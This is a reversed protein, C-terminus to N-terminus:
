NSTKIASLPLLATSIRTHICWISRFKCRVGSTKRVGQVTREAIQREDTLSSDVFPVLKIENMLESRSRGPKNGPQNRTSQTCVYSFSLSFFLQILPSDLSPTLATLSGFMPPPPSCPFPSSSVSKRYFGLFRIVASLCPILHLDDVILYGVIGRKRTLTKRKWRRVVYLKGRRKRHVEFNRHAIQVFIHFDLCVSTRNTPLETTPCSNM